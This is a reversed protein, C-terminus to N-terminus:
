NRGVLPPAVGPIADLTYFGVPVPDEQYKEDAYPRWPLRTSYAAESSAVRRAWQCREFFPRALDEQGPWPVGSCSASHYYFRPRADGPDSFLEHEWTPEPVAEPLPWNVWRQDRKGIAYSLYFPPRLGIDFMFGGAVAPSVYYIVANEPLQKLTTRIFGYERDVTCRATVGPMAHMWTAGLVALLSVCATRRARPTPLRRCRNWLADFGIAAVTLFPILSLTEYRASTLRLGAASQHLNHYVTLLGFLSYLAWFMLWWPAVQRGATAGYLFLGLIGIATYDTDLVIGTPLLSAIEFPLGLGSQDLPSGSGTLLAPLFFGGLCFAATLLHASWITRDHDGRVVSYGFTLTLLLMAEPRSFVCIATSAAYLVLFPLRPPRHARALAWLATVAFLIVYSQREGEGSFRVMVPTTALLVGGSWAARRGLGTEELFAVFALPALSGLVLSVVIVTEDTAPLLTFVLKLLVLPADGYGTHPNPLYFIENLNM